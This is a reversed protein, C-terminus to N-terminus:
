NNTTLNFAANATSANVTVEDGISLLAKFQAETATNGEVVYTQTGINHPAVVFGVPTDLIMWGSDDSAAPMTHNFAVVTGNYTGSSATVITTTYYLEYTDAETVGVAVASVDVQGAVASAVTISADAAAGATAVTTYTATAGAALTKATGDNVTISAAGNNTITWNVNVDATTTLAADSQDLLDYDFTTTAFTSYGATLATNNVITGSSTVTAIAGGGIAQADFTVPATISYEDPQWSAPTSKDLWVRINSTQAALGSNVNVVLIDGTVTLGTQAGGAAITPATEADKLTTTYALDKGAYAIASGPTVAEVVIGM